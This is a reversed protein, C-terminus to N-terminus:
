DNVMRGAVARRFVRLLAENNSLLSLNLSELNIQRRFWTLQRKAYRRTQQQIRSQCEERSITGSLYARIERIGIMQEITGSVPGAQRVEDIAGNDLMTAVRENIRLYLEDRDRFVFFGFYHCANEEGKLSRRSEKHCRGSASTELCM